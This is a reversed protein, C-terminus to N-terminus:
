PSVEVSGRSRWPGATGTPGAFGSADAGSWDAAHTENIM